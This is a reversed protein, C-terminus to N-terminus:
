HVHLIRVLEYVAPFVFLLSDIRDLVGGHEPLLSGMDKVGLARKIASECLDGVPAFVAVVVGLWLATRVDWPHIRSIAAVSVVLAVAMGGVLGEWTKNPSVRPALKHRGLLSGVALGGVDYSAAALAAGLFLAVGHGHRFSSPALIMGAFSGLVAVWAVGLLTVGANAVPDERILGVMYWALTVVATAAAVLVVASPGKLYGGVMAAPVALLVVLTAPKYGSRQLVACLEAAAMTVAVAALVLTAVSGAYFCALAIVAFLVGTATAVGIRRGSRGEREGADPAASEGRATGRRTRTSRVLEARAAEPQEAALPARGAAARSKRHRAKKRDSAGRSRPGPLAPLRSGIGARRQPRTPAAIDGAADGPHGGAPRDVAPVSGSLPATWVAWAQEAADPGDDDAEDDTFPPALPPGALSGAAPPAAAPETGPHGQGAGGAAGPGTERDSGTGAAVEVRGMQGTVPAEEEDAAQRAPASLPFDFGFDFPDEDDVHGGGSSIISDEDALHALDPEDDWDTIHERWIPGRVQTEPSRDGAGDEDPDDLLIRPVQGTPPDSWDPLEAVSQGGPEEGTVPAQPGSDALGAAVAASVGAIRVRETPPGSEVLRERSQTLAVTADRRSTYSDEVSQDAENV